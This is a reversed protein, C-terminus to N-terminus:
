QSVDRREKWEKFARFWDNEMREATFFANIGEGRKRRAYMVRLTEAVQSMFDTRYAWSGPYMPDRGVMEECDALFDRWNENLQILPYYSVAGTEYLTSAAGPYQLNEKVFPLDTYAHYNNSFQRYMGIDAGVASAIVEQLVSMHVANAGYAGWVIDNSRNTVTMNLKGGRLDFYIATNCPKDKRPIGLDYAPDWMQVVAQRSNPNTKLEDIVLELQDTGFHRRWRHGYAGNVRGDPEAYEKFRANFPLLWKVDQAGAMMWISEMLHFVPNADRKPDFLVREWPHSYETVVPGPSVVVPGNRSEETVGATKLHWFGETLAENVNRVQITTTM